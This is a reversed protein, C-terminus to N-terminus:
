LSLRDLLDYVYDSLFYMLVCTTLIAFFATAITFIQMQIPLGRGRMVRSTLRRKGPFTVLAFGVLFMITGIPPPAVIGVPGSFLVFIWGIVNNFIAWFYQRFSDLAQRRLAVTRQTFRKRFESTFDIPMLGHPIRAVPRSPLSVQDNTTQGSLTNGHE